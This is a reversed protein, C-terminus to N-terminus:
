RRKSSSSGRQRRAAVRRRGDDRRPAHRAARAEDVADKKCVIRLPTGPFGAQERIRAELYALYSRPPIDGRVFLVFTPVEADAQVAHHIRTGRPPSRLRMAHEIADLLETTPVHAKRADAVRMAEDLVESVGAGTSASMPLIPVYDLNRIIRRAAEEVAPWFAGDSADWKNGVLVCSRHSELCQALVRADHLTFGQVADFLVLAVTSKSLERLANEQAGSDPTGTAVRDRPRKQLGATDLLVIPQGNWECEAVVADRTTGALESVVSREAGLLRNLLTSKGANPRGVIAIHLPRARPLAYLADGLEEGAAERAAQVADLQEAVASLLTGTGLGHVASLAVPEGLGLSWFDLALDARHPGDVKNVAVVIPKGLTRLRAGLARERPGAGVTGDVVYVVVAAEALAAAAQREAAAHIVPMRVAADSPDTPEDYLGATDVAEFTRGEWEVTGYLRDRTTGAEESVIARQRPRWIAGPRASARGAIRNFLTSKGANPAGVLAVIPLRAARTSLRARSCSLMM